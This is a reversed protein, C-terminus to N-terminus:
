KQGTPLKVGLQQMMQPIENTGWQEVWKNHSIKVIWTNNMEFKKGTPAVGMFLGTHTGKASVRFAVKDGEAVIDAISCILDPFGVFAMTDFQKCQERSLDGTPSHLIYGPAFLEYAADIEKRNYLDYFKLIVAKNEKVSM